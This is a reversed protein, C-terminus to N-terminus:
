ESDEELKENLERVMAQRNNTIVEKAKAYNYIEILKEADMSWSPLDELKKLPKADGYGIVSLSNKMIKDIANLAIDTYDRANSIKAKITNEDM